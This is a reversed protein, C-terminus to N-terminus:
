KKLPIKKIGSNLLQRLIEIMKEQNVNRLVDVLVGGAKITGRILNGRAFESGASGVQEAGGIGSSSGFSEVGRQVQGMLSTPAETGLMKELLDAFNAQTIIDDEVKIGYTKLTEQMGQLLKLIESRSQTNSLIRRMALGSRADAFNDGLKFTRGIAAGMNNLQQITDSFQTNVQNYEPFNNDLLTDIDHRLGKLINQAKASLGEAEKGYNVIEDIYSKARHLQLADGSKALRKVRNFVNQILNQQTRLGEFNSNKFNLMKDGISVGARELNSYFNNLTESADVIKGSLSQAVEDLKKGAEKNLKEIPKAINNVFTDGVVDTAREVVRKNKLQSLRTDLMKVMKLKDAQSSLKILAVDAEPIGQRVAEKAVKDTIVKGSETLSKTAIDANPTKTKLLKAQAAKQASKAGVAAGVGSIAGGLIASAGGGIVAGMAAQKAIDAALKDEQLADTAGYAAGLPVGVKLGEKAGTAIAKGIGAKGAKALDVVPKVASPLQTLLQGTKATKTAAGYTGATAVDLLTGGIEGAIQKGTKNIAPVVTEWQVGAQEFTKKALDLRQQKKAPDTTKNALDLLDQGAKIFKQTTEDVQKQGGTALFAGQGITEGLGQEAKTLFNAAKGLINTTPFLPKKEPTKPTALSPAAITSPTGTSVLSQLQPNREILRQGIQEDTYNTFLDPNKARARAGIEQITYAM